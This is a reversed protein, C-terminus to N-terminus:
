SIKSFVIANLVRVLGMIIAMELTFGCIYSTFFNLDARLRSIPAPIGFITGIILCMGALVNSFILDSRTLFRALLAINTVGHSM